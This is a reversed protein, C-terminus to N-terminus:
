PQPKFSSAERITRKIAKIYREDTGCCGGIINVGLKLLQKTGETFHEPTETYVVKEEIVQFARDEEPSFAYCERGIGLLPDPELGLQVGAVLDILSDNDYIDVINVM